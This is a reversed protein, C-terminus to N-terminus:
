PTDERSRPPQEPPRATDLLRGAAALLPTEDAPAVVAEFRPGPHAWRLGADDLFVAIVAAGCAVALHLPGTDNTVVLAAGRFAAALQDLDTPPALAAAGGAAAVVERALAEEGPGWFVVSDIGRTRQLKRAFSAFGAAPWRHDQKRAGPNLAAYRGAVPSPGRGLATEMPAPSLRLGLPAGLRLKAVVDPTGPDPLPAIGSYVLRSPGRDAGVVWQRAAWRSLLASTLSFAHWHAADIVIDYRARLGRLFRLYRLPGARKEFGIARLNPLGEVLHVRRAAVLLDVRAQPLAAQLARVLPLTLLANGVRDDTRVVLVSQIRALPPPKAPLPFLAHAMRAVARVLAGPPPDLRPDM